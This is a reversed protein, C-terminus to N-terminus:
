ESCYNLQSLRVHETETGDHRRGRVGRRWIVMSTRMGSQLGKGWGEWGLLGGNQSCFGFSALSRRVRFSCPGVQCRRIMWSACITQGPSWVAGPVKGCSRPLLTKRWPITLPFLRPIVLLSLCVIVTFIMDMGGLVIEVKDGPQLDIYQKESNLLTVKYGPHWEPFKDFDLFQLTLPWDSLCLSM